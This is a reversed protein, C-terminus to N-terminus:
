HSSSNNSGNKNQEEITHLIRNVRDAREVGDDYLFLLHPVRRFNELRALESRIHPKARELAEKTSAKEEDNGFVSYFIKALSVDPSVEAATFTVFGFGPDKLHLAASSVKQLVLENLRALRRPHM